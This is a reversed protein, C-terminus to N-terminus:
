ILDLVFALRMSTWLTGQVPHSSMDARVTTCLGCFVSLYYLQGFQVKKIFILAYYIFDQGMKGWRKEEKKRKTFSVFQQPASCRWWCLDICFLFFFFRGGHAFLPFSSFHWFNCFTEWIYREPSFTLYIQLSSDVFLKLSIM